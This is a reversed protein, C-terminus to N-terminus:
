RNRVVMERTVMQRTMLQRPNNNNPNSMQRVFEKTEDDVIVDKFYTANDIKEPSPIETSHRVALEMVFGM